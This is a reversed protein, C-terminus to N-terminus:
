DLAREEVADKRMVEKQYDFYYPHKKYCHKLFCLDSQYMKITKESIFMLWGQIKTLKCELAVKSPKDDVKGGLERFSYLGGALTM